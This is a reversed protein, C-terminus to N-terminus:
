VMPRAFTRTSYASLMELAKLYFYDAKGFFEGREKRDAYKAALDFVDTKRLDQAAWTETPYELIEPRELYNYEHTAMWRAFHLLSERGYAYQEDLEGLETKLDLYRGLAQLFMTYFWKNEIDGLKLSTINQDPHIVRGLLEEAKKLFKRNQTLRFGDILANLANGSGRGPGHYYTSGSQSALGTNGEALWRFVTKSGDDMDIVFQALAIAADRSATNGTFLYHLMLGTTYIHENSPGGGKSKGIRPYSRHTALGADIYHFTHWFLGHNYAAKDEETHYIDIDVVHSALENFLLWWRHDGSRLWQVCFGATADYQNNYHSVLPDTLHYDKSYATEHDGYVEGFNRWGYEDVVERKHEMTDTGTIAAAALDLYLREHDGKESSFYNIAETAEVWSPDLSPLLPQRFWDLPTETVPDPGFSIAFTHTKQEGGQLEHLDEWQVPFLEYSIESGSIRVAKPFNQWFYRTALALNGCVTNQVITPTARRYSDNSAGNCHYGQFAIPVKGERDWHIHSRWNEGGSSGQYIDWPLEVRHPKQGPEPSCWAEGTKKAKDLGLIFEAGKFLFSGPDGLEWFGGPHAARHPNRITLSVIVVPLGAFFELRWDTEIRKGSKMRAIGYCNISAYNPCIISPSIKQVTISHIFGTEDTLFLGCPNGDSLWDSGGSSQISRIPWGAGPRLLFKAAGTDLTIENQSEIVHLQSIRQDIEPEPLTESPHLFITVPQGDSDVRLALLVWRASHDPWRDIVKTGCFIQRNDATRLEFRQEDALYNQPFPVGILLPEGQRVTPPGSSSLTIIPIREVM